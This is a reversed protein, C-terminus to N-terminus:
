RKNQASFYQGAAALLFGGAGIVFLWFPMGGTQRTVYAGAIAFAAGAAYGFARNM